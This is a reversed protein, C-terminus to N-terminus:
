QKEMKNLIINCKKFIYEILYPLFEDDYKLDQKIHEMIWLACHTCEHVLININNDFIGIFFNGKLDAWTAGGLEGFKENYGYKKILKRYEEENFSIFVKAHYMEIYFSNVM